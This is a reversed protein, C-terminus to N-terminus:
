NRPEPNALLADCLAHAADEIVLIRGTKEVPVGPSQMFEAAAVAALDSAPRGEYRACLSEAVSLFHPCGWGLFRLAEIRGGRVRAFLQIRVGQDELMVAVGDELRGAHVPDAFLARLERSYPDATM